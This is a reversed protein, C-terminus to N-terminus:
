SVEDTPPHKGRRPSVAGLAQDFRRYAASILALGQQLTAAYPALTEPVDNLTEMRASELAMFTVRVLSMGEDFAGLIDIFQAIDLPKARNCRRSRSNRRGSRLARTSKTAAM